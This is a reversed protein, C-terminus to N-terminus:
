SSECFIDVGAVADHGVRASPLYRGSTLSAKYQMRLACDFGDTDEGDVQAQGPVPPTM